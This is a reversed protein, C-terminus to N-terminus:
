TIKAVAIFTNKLDAMQTRATAIADRTPQIEKRAARISRTAEEPKDEDLLDLTTRAKAALWAAALDIDRFMQSDSGWLTEFLDGMRAADQPDLAQNFWDRLYVHYINIIKDCSGKAERMRARLQQGDFSLLVEREKQLGPSAVQPDFMLRLYNSIEHDITDCVTSVEELATLLMDLGPGPHNLLRNKVAEMMQLRAAFNTMGTLDPM